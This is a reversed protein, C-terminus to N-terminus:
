NNARRKELIIGASIGFVLSAPVLVYGYNMGLAIGIGVGIGIGVIMSISSNM